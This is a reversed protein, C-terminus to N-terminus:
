RQSLSTFILYWGTYPTVSLMILRIWLVPSDQLFIMGLTWAFIPTWIFNIVLNTATFKLKFADGLNKLPIQLFIFYLMIMLALTIIDSAKEAIIPFRSLLLRCAISFLLFIPQYKEIFSM